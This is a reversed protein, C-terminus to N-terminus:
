AAAEGDELEVAKFEVDERTLDMFAEELSAEKPTLEHLAVGAAAAADGIQASALGHVELLGPELV